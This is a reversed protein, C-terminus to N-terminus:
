STEVIGGAGVEKSDMWGISVLDFDLIKLGFTKVVVTLVSGSDTETARM